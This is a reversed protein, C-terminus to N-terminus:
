NCYMCEFEYNIVSSVYVRLYMPAYIGIYIYIYIYIYIDYIHICWYMLSHWSDLAFNLQEHYEYHNRKHGRHHICDSNSQRQNTKVKSSYNNLEYAASIWPANSKASIKLRCTPNFCMHNPNLAAPDFELTAQHKLGVLQHEVVDVFELVLARVCVIFLLM